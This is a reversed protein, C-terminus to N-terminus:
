VAAESRRAIAGFAIWIGLAIWEYITFHGPIAPIIKMLMMAIAVCFGLGAVLCAATSLGPQGPLTGSRGM